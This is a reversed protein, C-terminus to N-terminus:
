RGNIKNIAMLIACFKLMKILTKTIIKYLQGCKTFVLPSGVRTKVPLLYLLLSTITVVQIFVSYYQIQKNKNYQRMKQKNFSRVKM